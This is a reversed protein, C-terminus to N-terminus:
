IEDAEVGQWRSHHVMRRVVTQLSSVREVVHRRLGRPRIQHLISQDDRLLYENFSNRVGFPAERTKKGEKRLSTKIHEIRQIQHVVGLEQLLQLKADTIAIQM